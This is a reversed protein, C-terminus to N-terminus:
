SKRIRRVCSIKCNCLGFTGAYPNDDSGLGLFSYETGAVETTADTGTKGGVKVPKTLDWGSTTILKVEYDAYYEPKVNSLLILGEGDTVNIIKSSSAEDINM